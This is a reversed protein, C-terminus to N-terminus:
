SEQTFFSVGKSLREFKTKDIIYIPAPQGRGEIKKEKTQKLIGLKLLKTRFNTPNIEHGVIAEFVERLEPITFKEPLLEFGINTYNIKNRVREVAKKIIERHDFAMNKPLKDVPCWTVERADSGAKPQLKRYDLLSYYAVTLTPGRPDRNFSYFTYLQEIYAEVKTEELLERTACQHLTEKVTLYGGALAWHDEFPPYKRKVLLVCLSKDIISMIAVDTTVKYKPYKSDDYNSLDSKLEPGEATGKSKSQKTKQVM